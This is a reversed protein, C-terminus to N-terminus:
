VDVLIHTHTHTQLTLTCCHSFMHLQPTNQYFYKRNPPQCYQPQWDGTIEQSKVKKTRNQQARKEKSM